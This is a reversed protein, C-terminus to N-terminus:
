VCELVTYQNDLTLEYSTKRALLEAFTTLRVRSGRHFYVFNRMMQRNKQRLRGSRKVSFPFDQSQFTDIDMIVYTTQEKHYKRTTFCSLLCSAMRPYGHFTRSQGRKLQLMDPSISKNRRLTAQAKRCVYRGLIKFSSHRTTAVIRPYGRM